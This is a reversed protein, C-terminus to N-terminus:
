GTVPAHQSTSGNAAGQVSPANRDWHSQTLQRHCRNRVHSSISHAGLGMGVAEAHPSTTRAKSNIIPAFITNLGMERTLGSPQVDRRPPADKGTQRVSPKLAQSGDQASYSPALLM